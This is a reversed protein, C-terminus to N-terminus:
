KGFYKLFKKLGTAAVLEEGLLATVSGVEREGVKLLVKGCATGLTAPATLAPCLASVQAVKEQENPRLTVRVDEAAIAQADVKEGNVVAIRPALTEGKKLIRVTKFQSFGKSLLKATEADRFKRNNCGMAVAIMREGNKTATATVSFGAEGYFGTKMGDAGPYHILLKNHNRMIFAGGRFPAEIKGTYELVEPFNQILARSLVAFDYASVVDPSEGKNPPLGHPYHFESEAMGLDKATDNMLQVFADKTGSIHEALAVCADNASQILVAELLEKVTFTEGQKLYVQSGGVKSAEASATVTDALNLEGEKLKNLVVYALMLKVMSAPRLREHGNQEFLVEGTRYDMLLQAKCGPGASSVGDEEDSGTPASAVAKIKKKPAAEVPSSGLFILAVIGACILYVGRSKESVKKNDESM